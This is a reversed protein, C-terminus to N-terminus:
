VDVLMQRRLRGLHDRVEEFSLGVIGNGTQLVLELVIVLPHLRLIGILKLAAILPPRVEIQQWRVRRRRSAGHLAQDILRSGGM